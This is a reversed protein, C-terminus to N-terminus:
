NILQLRFTAGKELRLNKNAASLTTSGTTLAEASQSIQIGSVTRGLTQSAAGLTQGATNTVTGVASTTTNVVSGVSNTVGGLLGGGSNSNSVSGTSSSTGSVDSTFVDGVTANTAAQTVSVISASIPANLNKGEIRDFVVGLKSTANNKTKEQVETIRGILKAGKPIIVENGQKVEKSVKLVVADGVEANKVDLTKQLQAELTAGAELLLTKSAKGSNRKTQDSQKVSQEESINPEKKQNQAFCLVSLLLILNLGFIIKKM